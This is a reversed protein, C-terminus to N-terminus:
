QADEWFISIFGVVSPHPASGSDSFLILYIPYDCIDNGDNYTILPRKPFAICGHEAFRTTQNAAAGLYTHHVSDYLVDISAWKPPDANRGSGLVEIFDSATSAFAGRKSQVLLVRIQNSEDGAISEYRLIVKKVRIRSGIRTSRSTGAQIPNSATASSDSGIFSNFTGTTSPSQNIAYSVYKMNSQNYNGAVTLKDFKERLEEMPKQLIDPSM